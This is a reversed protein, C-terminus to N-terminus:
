DEPIVVGYVHEGLGAGTVAHGSEDQPYPVTMIVVDHDILISLYALRVGRYKSQDKSWPGIEYLQLASFKASCINESLM